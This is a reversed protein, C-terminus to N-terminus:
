AAPGAPVVVPRSGERLVEFPTGYLGELVAPDAVAAPEADLVVRGGALAVVRDAASM